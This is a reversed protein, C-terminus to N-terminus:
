TRARHLETVVVGPERCQRPCRAAGARAGHLTHAPRDGGELGCVGPDRSARAGAVVLRQRRAKYRRSTPSRPAPSSSVAHLNLELMEDWAARETTALPGAAIVGAANVLIDLRGLARRLRRRRAAPRRAGSIPRVSRPLATAASSRPSRRSGRADRSVLYVQAGLRALCARRGARHREIRRHGPPRARWSVFRSWPEEPIEHPPHSRCRAGNAGGGVGERDRGVAWPRRARARRARAGRGSRRPIYVGRSLAGTSRRPTPRVYPWGRWRSRPLDAPRRGHVRSRPNSDSGSACCGCVPERTAAGQIVISDGIDLDALRARLPASVRGLPDGGPHGRAPRAQHRLRRQGFLEEPERGELQLAPERRDTRRGRRARHRSRPQRPRPRNEDTHGRIGGPQM